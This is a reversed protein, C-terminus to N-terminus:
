RRPRHRRVGLVPNAAMPQRPAGLGPLAPRAAAGRGPGRGAAVRGRGQGPRGRHRGAGRRPRGHAPGERLRPAARGRDRAPRHRPLGAARGRDSRYSSWRSARAPRRLADAAGAAPRQLPGGDQASDAWAEAPAWAPLPGDERVLTLRTFDGEPQPLASAGRGRARGPARRRRPQAGDRLAGLSYSTSAAPPSSSSTAGPARRRAAPDLGGPRPGAYTVNILFRTSTAASRATSASARRCCSRPSAAPRRHLRPLDDVAARGRHVLDRRAHQRRRARRHVRPQRRQDGERRHARARDRPAARARPRRRPRRPRGRGAPLYRAASFTPTTQVSTDDACGALAAVLRARRPPSARPMM